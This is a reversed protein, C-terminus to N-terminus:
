LSERVKEYGILRLRYKGVPVGHESLTFEVRYLGIEYLGRRGYANQGQRVPELLRASWVTEYDDFEFRGEEQQRPNVASLYAVARQAAPMHATVARVRQLAALNTNFLGYLTLAGASFITLAVITELLTFGASVSSITSQPNHITSQAASFTDFPRLTSRRGRGAADRAHRDSRSFLHIDRSATPTPEPTPISMATRRSWSSVSM